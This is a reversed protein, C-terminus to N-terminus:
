VLIGSMTLHEHRHQSAVLQKDADLVIQRRIDLFIWFLYICQAQLRAVQNHLSKITLQYLLWTFLAHSRAEREQEALVLM